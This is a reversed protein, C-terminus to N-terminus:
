MFSSKLFRKRLLRLKKRLRLFLLKETNPEFSRGLSALLKKDGEITTGCTTLMDGTISASAGSNFAKEGSNSLLKRGAALRINAQPNIYRFMAITRLIEDESLSKINEYPTGPIPMLANIPISKIGLESLSIAMDLRDEFTEGMGIIGGSCVCLGEKQAAKITAIKMEYTHTTCINPFNRKSTEINHHYSTVGAERLARFQESSLFGMSACLNIKLQSHMKKYVSLAKEFDNGSVSKGACVIAFRNVGANQNKEAERIIKEEDLFPYVECSTHNFSSQACFKCNESCHGSRGNIISCLDVRNGSYKKRILDAGETLKQLNCNKFFSLNDTRLLRKGDCIEEALAFVDVLNETEAM